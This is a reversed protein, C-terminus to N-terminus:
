WRVRLLVQGRVSEGEILDYTGPTESRHGIVNRVSFELDAGKFFVDRIVAAGDVHWAGGASVFELADGRPYLLSRPGVYGARGYLSLREMPRWTVTLNAMLDAGIDYPYTKTAYNELIDGDPNITVSELYRYQERPGTNKLWTLNAELKLTPHPSLHGEIELGYIDQRNPLSLGAYPDEMVHNDLRQFIGTASFGMRRSREWAVQLNLSTIEELDPTKDEYVQRAFPTRYATGAILKYRWSRSPSWGVGGSLSTQNPFDEHIDRRLGAFLDFAGIRKTFQGFVSWLRSDYDKLLIIPFLAPNNSELYGPLYGQWLPADGVRKERYSVGGTFIGTGSMFSRDYIMESYLTREEQTQAQDIVEHEYQLDSYYGTFKLASSRGVDKKMEMKIFGFPSSRREGWRITDGASTMTYPRDNWTIRGSLNFWDDHSFNGYAEVYESRGPRDDGLRDQPSLPPGNDGRFRVIDFPRHDEQGRRGSVSLFADWLGADHGANAFFGLHEGPGQYLLGTEVGSLDKGTMPVINVLGAFADPGWLVSAPGNIIEIRKVSWLPMDYDLHHISKAVESGVPVTDYLFLVSNPIGRLYPQTGWEKGAMYFGPVNKLADSLTLAGQNQLERRSLVRAIAPAQWASQERRSAIRLVKTEEGVFMLMTEEGVQAPGRDEAWLPTSACLLGAAGVIFMQLIQLIFPM